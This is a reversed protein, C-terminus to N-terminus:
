LCSVLNLNLQADFHRRASALNSFGMKKVLGIIFNNIVAMVQGLNNYGMRTADEHLTKDRRYHLGNEIGWYGRTWALLQVASGREPSLSTIGYVIEESVEGTRCSTVKRELKFVQQGAPWGLFGAEDSMVTLRREEIRGHAKEKIEAVQQQLPAIHWGPAKRPPVFFQAVDRHLQPQNDKTFWIYDGGQGVIQVSLQRQTFMADGCVVRGKLDLKTLLRPAATIENEKSAVKMQFLVIGEEPLYAALLHVGTTKGKPITGRVTKGDIAVLLSQQGGYSQHLFQRFVTQLEEELVTAALIRRITNYSPVNDRPYNFATLLQRCRLKIWEAIGKPTDEGALKALLILMLIFSLSYRKGRAKRTDTLQDLKKLLADISFSFGTTASNELTIHHM